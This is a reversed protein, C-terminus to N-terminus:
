SFSAFGNPTEVVVLHVVNSQLADGLAKTLEDRTHVRTAPAGYAEALKVFDPNSLQTAMYRGNFNDRQFTKLVGWANDNFLLVVPSIGYQVATGLEQMNYQFGGDGAMVVVQRNPRGVKAGLGAPLGFGLGAWSHPGFYTRPEYVQLCRTSRYVPVTADGVIVADRALVSRIGELTKLENPFQSATSQYIDQKMQAVEQLYSDSTGPSGSDVLSLVQQLAIKADGVIGLSAPYNKGIEVPDIDIQILNSPLKLGNQKTRFYPMTSGIMLVLDCQQLFESLPNEGRTGGVEGMGLSLPHDEPFAGKGTTGTVVPAGLTEALSRLEATANASIVGSGAWIIPRCAKKLAQVAQEVKSPDPQARPADRPPLIEVDMQRGLLDTPIELEVPRPRGSRFRQFAELFHDPLSELNDILANWGTVSRFMGLQDKAEHIAGRGSDILELECNSTIQLIQSSAHYAEGMSGMSDAAGPGGSTLFVGPKGTVRSYGDAMFGLAHEHRGSIFRIADQEHYLADYIHLTHTSVIGFLTDVRHAKLCEVVAQGGTIQAM